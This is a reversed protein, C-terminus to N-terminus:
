LLLIFEIRCKWYKTNTTKSFRYFFVYYLESQISFANYDSFSFSDISVQSLSSCSDILLSKATDGTPYSNKHETFTNKGITVSNLYSLDKMKVESVYEFCDDGITVSELKVFNSFDLTNFDNENCSGSPITISKVDDPITEWEEKTTITAEDSSHGLVLVLIFGVAILLLVTVLIWIWKKSRSKITLPKVTKRTVATKKIGEDNVEIVCDSLELKGDKWIGEHIVKGNENFVKGAGEVIGNTWHGEFGVHEHCYLKGLGNRKNSTWQGEFVLNGQIYEKGISNRCFHSELTPSYGGEYITNGNADLEKMLDGQFEKLVISEKGHIYNCCRKLVGNDYTYCIGDFNLDADLQSTFCKLGSDISIDNWYGECSDKELYRVVHGHKYLYYAVVIGNDYVSGWNETVDNVYTRCERLIGNAYFDCKGHLHNEQYELVAFIQNDKTYLTYKGNKITSTPTPEIRLNSPILFGRFVVNRHSDM